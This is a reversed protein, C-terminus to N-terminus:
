PSPIPFAPMAGAKKMECDDCLFVARRGEHRLNAQRHPHANAPPIRIEDNGLGRYIHQLMFPTALIM